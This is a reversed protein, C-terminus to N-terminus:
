KEGLIDEETILKVQGHEIPHGLAQELALEVAGNLDTHYQGAVKYLNDIVEPTLYLSITVFKKPM